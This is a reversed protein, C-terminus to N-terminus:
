QLTIFYVKNKARSIQTYLKSQKEELSLYNSDIIFLIDTELGKFQKISSYHIKNKDFRGSKRLRVLPFRGLTRSNALSSNDIRSNLMVLINETSIKHTNVLLNIEKTLGEVLTRKNGFTKEIIKEGEPSRDHSEIDKDVISSLRSVINKTNRCNKTLQYNFFKSNDPLSSKRNFIDQMPDTFIYKYGNKECMRFIIEYWLEKFDQGEDIIIADYKKITDDILSELKIPVDISWFDDNDKKYNSSFWNPDKEDIISKALSHFTKVNINEEYKSFRFRIKNALTRNYCLFLVTKKEKLKELAAAIAIVTKGTGAYGKVLINKNISIQNFFEIQANTLQIFRKDEYRFKTSLTEVFGIGRLLERKFSEYVHVNCGPLNYVNNLEQAMSKFAEDFYLASKKDIIKNYNLSPPLPADHPLECDPFCLAWDIAVENRLNPYRNVLSHSASSAQRDPSKTMSSGNQKWKNQTGDYEIIGGKVEICFIAGCKSRRDPKQAVIFDIEYERQERNHRGIFSKSYFIDYKNQLSSLQKYVTKEAASSVDDPMEYPYIM